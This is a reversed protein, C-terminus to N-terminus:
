EKVLKKGSIAYEDGNINFTTADFNKLTIANKTSGVKFYIEGKSKNYSASFTSNLIQLMDDDEFGYIIDKGDGKAYFFTDAGDNGWM